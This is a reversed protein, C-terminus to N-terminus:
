NSIPDPARMDNFTSLPISAQFNTESKGQQYPRQGNSTDALLSFYNEIDLWDICDQYGDIDQLIIRQEDLACVFGVVRFIANAKYEFFRHCTEGSISLPKSKICKAINGINSLALTTFDRNNM